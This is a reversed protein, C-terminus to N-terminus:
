TTSFLSIEKQGGYLRPSRKGRSRAAVAARVEPLDLSAREIVWPAYAVVQRGPLIEEVLLRKAFSRSVQLAAAAQELTLWSRKAAKSVAPIEHKRRVSNVRSETWSNGVGTKYGLRNLILATQQDDCIHALDRVLDVVERDTTRRHEGPRNKRVRLPTHVGGAWHVHLVVAPPDASVDAIIEQIVTRLIRKKLEVPAHPHHWATELDQGLELLRERDKETFPKSADIEDLRQELERRRSLSENWRGELESAVLRNEPEVADFQRQARDSEYHAKELALQLQHLKEDQQNSLSEWAQLAAEVGSPLLAELVLAAVAQDVKRSAFSICKSKAHTVNSSRCVYRSLKKAYTVTLKHGCQACRLLGPLLAAGGKVASSMRGQMNGNQELTEQNRLYQEWTIYAPHHDHIVVKWDERPVEIGQTKRARGRVVRTVTKHRGDVFTGAYTPNKLISLIRSYCATRWIIEYGKTAPKSTPLPLEEQSYWLLVQRATGLEAFKAFIGRVVAQVQLDPSMECGYNETRVYGVPLERIVDGREIMQRLAEQARQRILGLEFESMTGKLGLLLRDNLRQPDYVGDGDIVVSKTLACLDILHHWDRNNRALRSAELALVGGVRGECVAALLRAFGPRQQLGSGSVGLDDDIVVVQQFGLERARDELAYQRRQSERNHRVQHSTSQRVYVYADRELHRATLKESM